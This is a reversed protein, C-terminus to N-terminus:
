GFQYLAFSSLWMIGDDFEVAATSGIKPCGPAGVLKGPGTELFNGFRGDRIHEPLWNIRRNNALM